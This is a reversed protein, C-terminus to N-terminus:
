YAYCVPRNLDTICWKERRSNMNGKTMELLQTYTRRFAKNRSFFIRISSEAKLRRILVESDLFFKSQHQFQTSYDTILQDLHALRFESEDILIISHFVSHEAYLKRLLQEANAIRQPVTLFKPTITQCEAILESHNKPTYEEIAKAWLNKEAAFSEFATQITSQLKGSFNPKAALVIALM